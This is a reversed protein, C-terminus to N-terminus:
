EDGDEDADSESVSSPDKQADLVAMQLARARKCARRFAKAGERSDDLKRSPVEIIGEADFTAGEPYPIDSLSEYVKTKKGGVTTVKASGRKAAQAAAVEEWLRPEAHYGGERPPLATCPNGYTEEIAGVILDAVAQRESESLVVYGAGRIAIEAVPLGSEPDKLVVHAATASVVEPEALEVTVRM